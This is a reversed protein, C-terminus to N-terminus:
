RRGGLEMVMDESGGLGRQQLERWKEPFEVHLYEGERLSARRPNKRIYRVCNHFHDWDRIMRDHYGKQWLSGSRRTVKNIQRASFPKWAHLIQELTWEARVLFLAHVHNPMVVYSYMVTRKAEFYELVEGVIHAVQPAKLVCTGYGADLWEDVKISFMTHYEMELEPSWPKPYNQLWRDRERLMRKLKAQPISDALHWTVFYAAGPQQWHPLRNRTKQIPQYPNLFPM